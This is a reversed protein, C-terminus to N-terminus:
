AALSAMRVVDKIGLHAELLRPAEEIPARHAILKKLAGPFLTMFQELEHVATRYARHGANVTGLFVQNGLVLDRMIRDLDISRDPGLAPVGTFVFVGNPGLAATAEFAVPSYGVAEFVVDMPGVRPRLASLQTDQASLYTAGFSRVLEARESDAPERSYVYVEHENSALMMAGLLGVAGAGLVLARHPERELWPMREQITEIQRAAKAAITLPEVLVGVDALADPLQILNGEDEVFLEALFGDAEKIGREHYHGSTCFDSVGARCARCSPVDCPRRVTPIVLMGPKLRSVSSGVSVVQAMSEHGLVLRDKGPPPTGYEFRAIERDTGCIGVDVTRLLLQTPQLPGEPDPTEVVKVKKTSPYVAVAKM